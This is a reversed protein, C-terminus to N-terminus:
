SQCHGDAASTIQLSEVVHCCRIDKQTEGRGSSGGSFGWDRKGKPVEMSPDPKQLVELLKQILINITEATNIRTAASPNSPLVRLVQQAQPELPRCQEM